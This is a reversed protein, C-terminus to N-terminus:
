MNKQLKNLYAALKTYNPTGVGTIPDWGKTCTFGVCSSACGYETCINDGVTIDQFNTPDAAYASYIFPNLFGMPKGTNAYSIQNLLSFIGGVIPSSASTGGVLEITGDQVILNFIGVASIDPAGRGTSNYYSSPPLKVGSALYASVAAQQYSPTTAIASFGGGSTFGANAYSVAQEVGSSPCSYNSCVPPPNKLKNVANMIQTAGVATVYPSSAPYEPRLEPATCDDDTRGHAGSDGSSV